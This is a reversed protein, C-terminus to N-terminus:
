ELKAMKPEAGSIETGSAEVTSSDERADSAKRKANSNEGGDGGGGSGGFSDLLKGHELLIVHMRILSCFTSTGMQIGKAWNALFDDAEAEARDMVSKGETKRIANGIESKISM